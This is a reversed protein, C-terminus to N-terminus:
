SKPENVFETVEDLLEAIQSKAKPKKKEQPEVGARSRPTLYLSQRLTLLLKRKADSRADLKAILEYTENLADQFKALDRPEKRKRRMARYADQANKAAKLASTRLKDIEQVQEMLLCYEVLIDQDLATVIVAELEEYLALMQRWVKSAAAHGTLARPPALPLKTKPRLASEHARRASRTAKTEARIILDVPKKAPM